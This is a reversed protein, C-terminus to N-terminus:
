PALAHALCSQIAAAWSGDPTEADLVTAAPLGAGIALTLQGAAAVAGPGVLVAGLVLRAAAGPRGGLLGRGARAGVLVRVSSGPTPGDEVAGSAGDAPDVDGIVVMEPDTRVVRPTVLPSWRVGPRRGVVNAAVVRAMPGPSAGYVPLGTIEGCALVTEVSTRLRDDVSVAGGAMQAIGAAPLDLGATRPRRGAALVLAEAAVDGGVDTGVWAGGDLTPAVSVVQAGCILRVGDAVLADVVRQAAAEPLDPLPRDAREVVTVTIGLRALGQALECGRAGAGLVVASAPREPRDLVSDGTLWLTERSGPVDPVVPAAGTALVIREPTLVHAAGDPTELAVAGRPLLRVTGAARVVGRRSLTTLQGGMRDRVTALEAQLAPWGLGGAAADRLLAAVAHPPLAPTDVASVASSVVSSAATHLLLAVRGRPGDELRSAIERAAAVADADPHPGHAVVVVQAGALAAPSAETRPAPVVAQGPSPVPATQATRASTPQTM